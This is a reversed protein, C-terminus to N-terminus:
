QAGASQQEILLPVGNVDEEACLDPLPGCGIGPVQCVQIANVQNPLLPIKGSVCAQRSDTCHLPCDEFLTTYQEICGAPACANVRSSAYGIGCLYITQELQDTPSTVPAVVPIVARCSTPTEMATPTPTADPRPTRTPLGACPHSCQNCSLTASDFQGEPCWSFTVGPGQALSCCYDRSATFPRCPYVDCPDCASSEYCRGGEQPDTTATPVPSGNQTPEAAPCGTLALNVASIVDSIEVLGDSGADGAACSTIVENGLAVNVITLLESITVVDDANCDGVCLATSAAPSLAVAIWLVLAMSVNALLKKM